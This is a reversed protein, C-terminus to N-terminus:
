FVTIYPKNINLLILQKCNFKSILDVTIAQKILLLNLNILM